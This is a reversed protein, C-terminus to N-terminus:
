GAACGSHGDLLSTGEEAGDALSSGLDHQVRETTFDAELLALFRVSFVVYDQPFLDSQSKAIQRAKQVREAMPIVVM